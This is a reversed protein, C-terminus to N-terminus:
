LSALEASSGVRSLIKYLETANIPKALYDDMGAELCRERDDKMAHATMAVILIHRGTEAERERIKRTATLGDMEPMQVDMFVVDFSSHELQALVENGNQAVTVAHGNRELWRVALKQNVMNDEALLIKLPRQQSVGALAVGMGNEVPQRQGPCLIATIASSLDKRLPPKILWAAVGMERCRAAQLHYDRSTLMVVVSRMREAHIRSRMMELGNGSEMLILDCAHAELWALAALPSDMAVSQMDWLQLMEQLINRSTANEEIILATYGQFSAKTQLSAQAAQPPEPQLLVTFYFRAGKGSGSEVWIKGGMLGALRSCIALGLGTGGFRRTHSADAQRFSEFIVQQQDPPIGIGTDAVCVQLETSADPQEKAEVSIAVEGKETFKIANGALNLLIQKLRIPDGVLRGPVSPAIRCCLELNKEHAVVALARVGEAIVEGPDFPDSGLEMRGADIKSFDLVDNIVDLLANASQGAMTLCSNLEETLQMERMVQLMGLVGNLPTRIEHSMNALFESKTRTAAEAAEKATRLDRTHEGVLALLRRETAKMRHIRAANVAIGVLICSLASLGIFLPTKYFVPNLVVAYSVENSWVRSDNAALVRLRYSGRPLESYDVHGKRSFSWDAEHGEPKYGELKYKYILHEPAVFSLAAFEFHLDTKGILERGPVSELVVPPTNGPMHELDVMLIGRLNAFYLKSGAKLGALQYGGIFDSSPLGDGARYLVYDLQKTKGDAFDNLENKSIRFLGRNSTMWFHGSSDELMSWIGTNVSAATNLLTKQGNRFRVMAPGLSGVWITGDSDEYICTAGSSRKGPIGSIEYNTFRRNEWRSFGTETAFWLRGARDQFISRVLADPMGDKASFNQMKGDKFRALGGSGFGIWMYGSGDRLLSRIPRRDLGYGASYNVLKGQYLMKLGNDDGVWLNGGADDAIAFIAARDKKVATKYPTIRNGALRNLGDWAGAWISGDPSQHLTLVMNHSLGQSRDYTTFKSRTLREVGASSGVWLSGEHDQYISFVMNRELSDKSADCEEEGGQLRCLGGGNLGVWLNGAADQRIARVEHSSLQQNGYHELRNGRFSYVGRKETGIWLTEQRDVFLTLSRSLPLTLVRSNGTLDLRFLHSGTAAWIIGSPGAALAMIREHALKLEGHYPSVKGSKLIALGKDTGIWLNGYSDQALAYIRDSPLGEQVTYTILNGDSYRSLGGASSGIWLVNQRDDALLSNINDSNSPLGPTHTQDFVVFQSGNFRALGDDTGFWLYGDRTQAIAQVWNSPLGDTSSWLGRVYQKISPPFGLAVGRGGVLLALLLVTKAGWHM